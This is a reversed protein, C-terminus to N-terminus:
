YRYGSGSSSFHGSQSNFGTNFGSDYSGGAGSQQQQLSKLIAEPIPPSTPLHDGTPRFGNEDAIYNVTITQGEPSTYSYSGRVEETDANKLRGVENFSIKNDTQYSFFLYNFAFFYNPINIFLKSLLIHDM